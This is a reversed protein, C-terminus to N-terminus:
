EGPPVLPWTGIAASPAGRTQLLANPRGSIPQPSKFGWLGATACRLSEYRGKLHRCLGDLDPFLSYENVGALELFQNAETVSEAGLEFKRVCNAFDKDLPGNSGHLTFLGLQRALRLNSRQPLVAVVGEFPVPTDAIFYQFYDDRFYAEIDLIEDQDRAGKNLAYPDLLWVAAKARRDKVAFFLATAFAETWDLLRTPLGHHQMLFAIDWPGLQSALLMSASTRFEYYLCQEAYRDHNSRFVGPLLSWTSDGQGRFFPIANPGWRAHFEQVAQNIEALFLQWPTSMITCVRRQDMKSVPGLVRGAAALRPQEWCREQFRRGVGRLTYDANRVFTWAVVADAAKRRTARSGGEISPWCARVHSGIGCASMAASM